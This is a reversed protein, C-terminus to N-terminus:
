SQVQADIALTYPGLETAPILALYRSGNIKNYKALVLCTGDDRVVCDFYIHDDDVIHRMGRVVEMVAATPKVRLSYFGSPHGTVVCYHGQARPQDAKWEVVSSFLQNLRDVEPLQLPHATYGKTASAKAKAKHNWDKRAARALRRSDCNQVIRDGPLEVVDWSTGKGSDLTNGDDCKRVTYRKM